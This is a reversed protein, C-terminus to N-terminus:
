KHQHTNHPTCEAQANRTHSPSPHHEYYDGTEFIHQHFFGSNDIAESSYMIILTCGACCLVCVCVCMCVCMCVCVCVCVCVYVCVYVCVCVCVCVCM